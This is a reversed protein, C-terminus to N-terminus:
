SPGEAGNPRSAPRRRSGGDPRRSYANLLGAGSVVAWCGELLIFGVQFEIVAMAALIASGILNLALYV